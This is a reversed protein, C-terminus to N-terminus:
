ALLGPIIPVAPLNRGFTFRREIPIGLIQQLTNTVHSPGLYITPDFTELSLGPIVRGTAPDFPRGMVKVKEIDCALHVKSLEEDATQFDSAGFVQGGRIGRGAVILTNTLLNHDTGSNDIPSGRSRMTRGFETGILVTTDELMTRGSPSLTNDLHEFIIALSESIATYQKPLSKATTADHADINLNIGLLAQDTVGVRMLETFMEMNAKTQLPLNVLPDNSGSALPESIKLQSFSAGFSPLSAISREFDRGSLALSTKGIGVRAARRRASDMLPSGQALSGLRSALAKCSSPDLIMSGGSNTISALVAGTQAYDLPTKRINAWPVFFEGGFPNGSLLINTAQDHGDLSPSMVIGNIITFHDAWKMLPATMPARLTSQGNTGTYPVPDKAYYNTVLNKATMDLPRADFWYQGDIASSVQIHLFFRPDAVKADPPNDAAFINRSGLLSVGGTALTIKGASEFFSRRTLKRHVESENIKKHGNM